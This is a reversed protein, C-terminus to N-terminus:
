LGNAVPPRSGSSDRFSVALGGAFDDRRVLAEADYIASLNAATFTEEVPGSAVLEGDKLFLLEHGYAAALNLDHSVTVVLRGSEALRKALAMLSLAQAIDLGASPEDLLVVPAEQALTRAVVARRREGGSLATVPRGALGELRLEGLARDVVRWDEASLVGWRGLHPRRGMAVVERVTFSFNLALEQPALAVKRALGGPAVTAVDRGFIELAGAAPKKLNALLDLFTSKGAGNPGAVIYHRGPHLDVDVDRLVRRRGYSFGLGRARIWPGDSFDRNNTPM